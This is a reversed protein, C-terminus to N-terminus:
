PQGPFLQSAKCNGGDRATARKDSRSQNDAPSGADFVLFSRDDRRSLPTPAIPSAGNRSERRLRGNCVCGTRGRRCVAIPQPISGKNRGTAPWALLPTRPKDGARGCEAAGALWRGGMEPTLSFFETNSQVAVKRAVHDTTIAQRYCKTRPWAPSALQPSHSSRKFFLNSLALHYSVTAPM